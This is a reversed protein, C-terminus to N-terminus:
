KRLIKSLLPGDPLQSKCVNWVFCGSQLQCSFPRASIVKQYVDLETGDPIKYSAGSQHEKYLEYQAGLVGQLCESDILTETICCLSSTQVLRLALCCASDHLWPLSVLTVHARSSKM